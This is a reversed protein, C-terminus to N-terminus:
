VVRSRSGSIDLKNKSISNKIWLLSVGTTNASIIKLLFDLTCPLYRPCIPWIYEKTVAWQLHPTWLTTGYINNVSLVWSENRGGSQGCGREMLYEM